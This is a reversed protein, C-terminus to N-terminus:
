KVDSYHGGEIGHMHWECKGRQADELCRLFEGEFKFISTCDRM